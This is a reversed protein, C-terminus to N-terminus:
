RVLSPAILWKMVGAPVESTGNITIRLLAGKKIEINGAGGTLFALMNSLQPEHGVLLVPTKDTRAYLEKWLIAPNASPLLNRSQHIEGGGLVKAAIEASQRARTYPSTLIAIPTLKARAFKIV